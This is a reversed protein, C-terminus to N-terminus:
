PDLLSVPVPGVDRRPITTSLRTFVGSAVAAQPPGSTDASYWALSPPFSQTVLTIEIASDMRCVLQNTKTPVAALWTPTAARIALAFPPVGSNMSSVTLVSHLTPHQTLTVAAVFSVRFNACIWGVGFGHVASEQKAARM